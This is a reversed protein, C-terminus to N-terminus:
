TGKTEETNVATQEPLTEQKSELPPAEEQETSDPSWTMWYQFEEDSVDDREIVEARGIKGLVGRLVSNAAFALGGFLVALILVVTLAIKWGRGKKKTKKTKDLYRGGKGM